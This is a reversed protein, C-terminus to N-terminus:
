VAIKHLKINKELSHGTNIVKSLFYFNLGIILIFVGALITNYYKILFKKNILM